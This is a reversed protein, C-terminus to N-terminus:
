RQSAEQPSMGAPRSPKSRASGSSTRYNNVVGFNRADIGFASALRRAGALVDARREGAALGQQVAQVTPNAALSTKANDLALGLRNQAYQGIFRMRQEGQSLDALAELRRRATDGIGGMFMTDSMAESPSGGYGAASLIRQAEGYRQESSLGAYEARYAKIEDSDLLGEVVGQLATALATALAPAIAIFSELLFTVGTSIANLFGQGFSDVIKRFESDSMGELARQVQGLQENLGDIMGEVGFASTIRNGLAIFVADASARVRKLKNDMLEFIQNAKEQTSATDNIQARLADFTERSTQEIKKFALITRMEFGAKMALEPNDAFRTALGKVTDVLSMGPKRMFSFSQAEERSFGLAELQKDNKGAINTAVLFLNRVAVSAKEAGGLSKRLDGVIALVESLDAKFIGAASGADKMADFLEAGNLATAVLAGGLKLATETAQATPIDFQQMVQALAEGATAMDTDGLTALLSAAKVLQEIDAPGYGIQAFQKQSKAIDMLSFPTKIGTQMANERLGALEGGSAGSLIAVRSIESEFDAASAVTKMGLGAVLGTIITAQMAVRKMVGLVTNFGRYTSQAADYGKRGLDVMHRGTQSAAQGTSQAADRGKRGLDVMKRGTQSAAQGLITLSREHNGRRWQGLAVNSKDVAGTMRATEREVKRAGTEFSRTKLAAEYVIRRAM